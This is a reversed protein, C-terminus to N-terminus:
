RSADLRQKSSLMHGPVSTPVQCAREAAQRSARRQRLSQRQERKFEQEAPVRDSAGGAPKRLAVIRGVRLADLVPPPLEATAMREAAAHLRLTDGNHARM